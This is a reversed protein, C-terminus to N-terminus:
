KVLNQKKLLFEPCDVVDDLKFQYQCGFDPFSEKSTFEVSYVDNGFKMSDSIKLNHRCYFSKNYIIYNIYVPQKARM